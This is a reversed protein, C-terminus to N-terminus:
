EQEGTEPKFPIEKIKGDASRIIKTIKKEAEELAKYCERLAKIGREYKVLSDDLTLNGSELEEVTEDLDAYAEEYSRAKGKKAKAM